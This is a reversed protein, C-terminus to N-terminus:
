PEKPSTAVMRLAVGSYLRNSIFGYRLGERLRM